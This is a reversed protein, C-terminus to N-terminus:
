TNKQAILYEGSHAIQFQRAELYARVEALSIREEHVEIALWQTHALCDSFDDSAKILEKEAGEIDIKFIDIRPWQHQAWLTKPSFAQTPTLATTPVTTVAFASHSGDRFSQDLYLHTDQHWLAAQLAQIHVSPNHRCHWQLQAFNASEPELAIIHAQPFYATFYLAALGINAGADIIYQPAPSQTQCVQRIFAAYDQRIWIQAFIFFDSTHKRLRISFAQGNLQTNILCYGGQRHIHAGQDALHLLVVLEQFLFPHHKHLDRRWWHHYAVRWGDRLGLCAALVRLRHLTKGLM